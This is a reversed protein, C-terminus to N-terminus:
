RSSGPRVPRDATILQEVMQQSHEFEYPGPTASVYVTQGARQEFEAFNLPRNDLASPLRFGHEVLVEKRSQDGGYMRATDAAPDHAVRRHLARYDEPFYDMLTHPTSGPQRQAALHRSYNEVGACYGTERLMEIDYRTREVRYAAGGAAQGRAADCALHAGRRARGPHEELALQLKEDSTVFHKAPYIEM